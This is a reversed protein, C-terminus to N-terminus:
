EEMVRDYYATMKAVTRFNMREIKTQGERIRWITVPEVDIEKAIRYSTIDTALLKRVKNLDGIMKTDSM